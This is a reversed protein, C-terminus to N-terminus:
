WQEPLKMIGREFLTQPNEDLWLQVSLKVEDDARFIKGGLDEKIPGFLHFDSPAIHPNYAPHPLIDLHIKDLTGPTM